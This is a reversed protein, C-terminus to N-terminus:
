RTAATRPTSTRCRLPRRSRQRARPPLAARRPRPASSAARRCCPASRSALPASRARRAARSAAAARRRQFRRRPAPSSSASPRHLSSPRPHHATDAAAAPEPRWRALACRQPRRTSPPSRGGPTGAARPRWQILGLSWGGDGPATCLRPPGQSRRSRPRSDTAPGGRPGRVKDPRAQVAAANATIDGLARHHSPSPRLASSAAPTPAVICGGTGASEGGSLVPQRSAKSPIWIRRTGVSGRSRHCRLWHVARGRRRDGPSSDHQDSCRQQPTPPIHTSVVALKQPHCVPSPRQLAGRGEM